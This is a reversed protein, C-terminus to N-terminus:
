KIQVLSITKTIVTGDTAIASLRAIYQGNAEGGNWQVDQKGSLAEGDVLSAVKRGLLDYVELTVTMQGSLEFNINTTGQFPNPYNSFITVELPMEETSSLGGERAVGPGSISGPNLSIIGGNVITGSTAGGVTRANVVTLTYTADASYMVGDNAAFTFVDTGLYGSAPTYSLDNFEAVLITQGVAVPTNSFLLQGNTPLNTIRINKQTNGEEQSFAWNFERASLRSNQGKYVTRTIDAAVPADTVNNITITFMGEESLGGLDTGAVRISYSNKVEYNFAANAILMNGSIFFSGNDADGAGAALSFTQADGNDQDTIGFIGIIAGAPENEDISTASLTLGTPAENIDSVVVTYNREVSAGGNDTARVRVAYNAQVEYDLNANVQLKNALITFKGNDAGGVGPVLIITHLDALDEDTVTINGVATGIPSNEDIGIINIAVDSPADNKDNVSIALVEETYNGDGDTSRVRISYSSKAEYNFSASAFIVNGALIFSANDDAGIGGVLGYTHGGTQDPDLTTLSGVLTGVLENEDISAASITIGSPSDAGDAITIAFAQEFTAGSADTAEVRISYSARTEFDFVEAATLDGNVLTFSANDDDGQGSVMAYTHTDNADPDTATFYGVFAGISNNEAITANSLAIAIPAQNIDSVNIVFVEEVSATAADASRVRITYQQQTNYNLVAATTLVNSVITFSANDADGTGSVLTLTHSDGADEDATVLVGVFSGAPQQEDITNNTLTIASPADNVDNVDLLIVKEFALGGQDVTQVRISLQTTFEYNVNNDLLLQNGVLSFYVNGLDGAGSVLQYIHSDGADVDTSSLTLVQSGITLNEDFSTVSSVVDVPSDNIPTVSINVTADSAAYDDGDTANFTFSDSGNFDTNPTYFLHEIEYIYVVDGATVPQAYLTLVGSAPLTVIKMGVISDNELDTYTTATTFDSILAATEEETVVAIDELVPADNVSNVTISISAPASAWLAGDYANLDFNDSGNFDANPVYYMLSFQVLSYVTNAAIPYGGFQYITGNAPLSEFRISQPDDNNIDYFTGPNNSSIEDFLMVSGDEDISISADTMVPAYNPTPLVAMTINDTLQLSPDGPMGGYEVLYFGVGGGYPFDNWTGSSGIFHAVDEGSGCDNPEGNAWAAFYGNIGQAQNASCFGTKFQDSFHRGAGSNELGEPGSIWRWVGESAADSAGMWTNSNIKESVFDNETSSTVTVLYGQLGYLSKAAANNKAVTWDITGGNDILEYFHGNYENYLAAGIIFNINRSTTSSIITTTNRYMVTRLAAEYDAASGSGTLTLIGTNSDYSGSIGNMATFDLRDTSVFGAGITVKATTFTISPDSTLTLNPAVITGTGAGYYTGSINVTSLYPPTAPTPAAQVGYAVGAAM